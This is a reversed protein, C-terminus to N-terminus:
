VAIGGDSEALTRRIAQQYREKREQAEKEAKLQHETKPPPVWEQWAKFFTGGQKIFRAETGSENIYNIYRLLAAKFNEADATTRVSSRFAKLADDKREKRPNQEWMGEFLDDIAWQIGDAATITQTKGKKFEQKHGRAPGKSAGEQGSQQGVQQGKEGQRPQYTNWNVITIISYKSATKITLNNASKLRNVCTRINKESLKLEAAAVKRGFVFQGPQLTIRQYGVTVVHEQHSAKLLCWCWFVWLIPNHLWGNYLSQRYLKVYGGAAPPAVPSQYTEDLDFPM